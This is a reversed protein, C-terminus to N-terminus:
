LIYPTVATTLSLCAQVLCTTAAVTNRVGRRNKKKGAEQSLSVVIGSM